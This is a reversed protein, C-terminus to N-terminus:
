TLEGFINLLPLTDTYKRKRINLVLALPFTNIHRFLITKNM